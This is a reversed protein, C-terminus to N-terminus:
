GPGAKSRRTRAAERQRAMPFYLRRFNLARNVTSLFVDRSIPKTLYDFAGVKLAQVASEVAGHATIVIVVATPDGVKIQALFALGDMGPM